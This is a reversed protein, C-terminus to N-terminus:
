RTAADFLVPVVFPDTTLKVVPVAGTGGPADVPVAVDTDLLPAVRFPFTFGLPDAVWAQNSHPVLEDASVLEVGACGTPDPVDLWDNM